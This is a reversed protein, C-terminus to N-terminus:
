RREEVSRGAMEAIQQVGASQAGNPDYFVALPKEGHFGDGIVLIRVKYCEPSRGTRYNGNKAAPKREASRRHGISHGLMSEMTFEGLLFLQSKKAKTDHLWEM